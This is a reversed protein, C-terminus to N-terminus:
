GALAAAAVADFAALGFADAGVAICISACICAICSICSLIIAALDGSSRWASIASWKFAICSPMAMIPRMCPPDIPPPMDPDCCSIIDRDMMMQMMVQMMDM